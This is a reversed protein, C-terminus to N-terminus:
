KRRKGGAPKGTTPTSEGDPKGQGKKAKKKGSPKGEGDKKKEPAKISEGFKAGRQSAVAASQAAGGQDRQQRFEALGQKLDEEDMGAANAYFMATNRGQEKETDLTASEALDLRNIAAEACISTLLDETIAKGQYKEMKAKKKGFRDAFGDPLGGPNAKNLREVLKTYLERRHAEVKQQKAEAEERAAKDEQSELQPLVWLLDYLKPFDKYLVEKMEKNQSPTAWETDKYERETHLGWAHVVRTILPIMHSLERNRANYLGRLEKDKEPDLENRFGQIEKAARVFHARMSQAKWGEDFLIELGKLEPMSVLAEKVAAPVESNTTDANQSRQGKTPTPTPRATLREKMQEASIPQIGAQALLSQRLKAGKDQKAQREAQRAEEARAAAEAQQEILKQTLAAIAGYKVEDFDKDYLIGDITVGDVDSNSELVTQIIVSLSAFADDVTVGRLQPTSNILKQLEGRLAKEAPSTNGGKTISIVNDSSVPTTSPNQSM